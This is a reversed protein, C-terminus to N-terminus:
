VSSARVEHIDTFGQLVKLIGDQRLTLMGAALATTQIAAAPAHNRIAHGVKEHM